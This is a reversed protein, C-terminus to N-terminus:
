EKDLCHWTHEDLCIYIYISSDSGGEKFWEGEGWEGERSEASKGGYIEEVRGWVQNFSNAAASCLATGSTTWLLTSLDFPAPAMSYGALATLVM